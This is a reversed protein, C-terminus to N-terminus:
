SVTWGGSAGAADSMGDFEPGSVPGITANLDSQLSDLATASIEFKALIEVTKAGAM